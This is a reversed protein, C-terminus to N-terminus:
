AKVITVLLIQITLMRNISTVRSDSTINYLRLFETWPDVHIEVPVNKLLVEGLCETVSTGFGTVDTVRM